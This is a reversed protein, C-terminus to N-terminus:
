KSSNMRSSSERALRKLAGIDSIKKSM